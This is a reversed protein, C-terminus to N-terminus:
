PSAGLDFNFLSGISDGVLFDNAPPSLFDGANLSIFGGELPAADVLAVSSGSLALREECQEFMLRRHRGDFRRQVRVRRSQKKM